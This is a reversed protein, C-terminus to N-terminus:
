SSRDLHERHDSVRLDRCQLGLCLLWAARALLAEEGDKEFVGVGSIPEEIQSAVTEGM